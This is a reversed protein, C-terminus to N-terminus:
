FSLCITLVTVVVLLATRQRRLEEITEDTEAMFIMAADIIETKTSRANVEHM